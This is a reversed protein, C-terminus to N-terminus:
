AHQRRLRNYGFMAMLSAMFIMAWESLTPVNATDSTIAIVSLTDDLQNSVYARTGTSNFAIDYPQNGVNLHVAGTKM